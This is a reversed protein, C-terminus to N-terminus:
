DDEFDASGQQTSRRSMNPSIADTEQALAELVTMKGIRHQQETIGPIDGGSVEQIGQYLYEGM